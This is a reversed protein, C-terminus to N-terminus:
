KNKRPTKEAFPGPKKRGLLVDGDSIMSIKMAECSSEM